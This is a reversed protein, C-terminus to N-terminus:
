QPQTWVLRFGVENWKYSSSHFNGRYSSLCGGKSDSWCGGRLMRHKGSLPGQPDTGGNSLDGAWDLCWECLNGHMDYLGWANPMYYGVVTHKESYGGKGDLQSDKYRGLKKLDEESDGGNNFNSKTGARCAYEWQAETPLDFDLGTRARIKGIFSDADVASSAPWKAGESTGRIMDYSVCEVPRMDGKFASPNKGMVLEYQKQTVEFIGIYFPNTLTVKCKGYWMIFKGRNLRRLVLKTTKYEDTNFGGKPLEKLYSIPYSEAKPGGSLDIVCYLDNKVSGSRQLQVVEPGKEFEAIKQEALSKNLGTLVGDAIAKRYLDVAHSRYANKLTANRIADAAKWWGDAIEGVAARGTREEDALTAVASESVCLHNIAKPWEGFVALANGARLHAGTDNPDAEIEKLAKQLERDIVTLANLQKCLAETQVPKSIRAISRGADQLLKVQVALPVDPITEVLGKFTEVTKGDDGTKAYLELAARYLLFKDAESEADPVFALAAEAAEQPKARKKAAMLEEVVPKVRDIEKQAPMGWAAVVAVALVTCLMGKRM